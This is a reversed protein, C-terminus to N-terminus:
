KKSLTDQSSTNFQELLYDIKKDRIKNNISDEILKNFEFKDIVPSDNRISFYFSVTLLFIFGLAGIFIQTFRNNREIRFVRERLENLISKFQNQQNDDSDEFQYNHFVRSNNPYITNFIYELDNSFYDISERISGYNAVTFIILTFLLELTGQREEYNAIYVEKVGSFLFHRKSHSKLLEYIVNTSDDFDSFIPYLKKISDSTVQKIERHDGKVKGIVIRFDTRISKYNKGLESLM